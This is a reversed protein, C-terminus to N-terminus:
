AEDKLLEKRRNIFVSICKDLVENYDTDINIEEAIVFGKDHILEIEVRIKNSKIYYPNLCNNLRIKGKEFRWAGDINIICENEIGAEMLKHLIKNILIRCKKKLAKQCLIFDEVYSSLYTKNYVYDPNVAVIYESFAGIIQGIDKVKDDSMEQNEIFNQLDKTNQIGM